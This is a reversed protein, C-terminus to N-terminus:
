NPRLQGFHSRYVLQLRPRLWQWIDDTGDEMRDWLENAEEDTFLGLPMLVSPIEDAEWVGLFVMYLDLGVTRGLDTARTTSDGCEEQLGLESFMKLFASPDPPWSDQNTGFLTADVLAHLKQTVDSANQIEQNPLQTSRVRLHTRENIEDVILVHGKGITPAERCDPPNWLFQTPM